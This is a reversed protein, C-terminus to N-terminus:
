KKAGKDIYHHIIQRIAEGHSIGATAAKAKLAQVSEKTDRVGPIKANCVERKRASHLKFPRALYAEILQRVGAYPSTGAKKCRQAFQKRTAADIRVDPHTASLPQKPSLM